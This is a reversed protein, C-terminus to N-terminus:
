PRTDMPDHIPPLLTMTPWGHGFVAGNQGAGFRFGGDRTFQHPEVPTPQSEKPRRRPDQFPPWLCAVGLAVVRKGRGRERGDERGHGGLGFQGGGPFFIGLGGDRIVLGAVGVALRALLDALGSGGVGRGGGEIKDNFAEGGQRRLDPLELRELLKAKMSNSTHRTTRFVVGAFAMIARRLPERLKMPNASVTEASKNGLYAGM